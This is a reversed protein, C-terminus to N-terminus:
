NTNFSSQKLVYVIKKKDIENLNKSYLRIWNNKIEVYGIVRYKDNNAISNGYNVVAFTDITNNLIDLLGEAAGKYPVHLCNMTKCLEEMAKYSFTGMGGSGINVQSKKRLDSISMINSQANVIVSNKFSGITYIHDIVRIVDNNEIESTSITLTPKITQEVYAYGIKHAAGPKNLVVFKLNTEKELHEVMKRSLVDDPGGPAASVVVEIPEAFCNFAALVLLFILQKM